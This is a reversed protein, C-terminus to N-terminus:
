GGQWPYRRAKGNAIHHDVQLDVRGASGPGGNKEIASRVTNYRPHFAFLIWDVHAIPGFFCASVTTVLM